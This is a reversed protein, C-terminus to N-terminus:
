WDLTETEARPREEQLILLTYEQRREQECVVFRFKPLLLVEDQGSIPSLASIDRAGSMEDLLRFELVVGDKASREATLLERNTSSLQLLQRRSGVSLAELLAKAHEKSVGRYLSGRACPLRSLGTFLLYLYGHGAEFLEQNHQRMQENLVWCFNENRHYQSSVYILGLDFTYLVLASVMPLDNIQRAEELSERAKALKMVEKILDAPARANPLVRVVEEAWEKFKKKPGEPPNDVFNVMPREMESCELLFNLEQRSHQQVPAVTLM